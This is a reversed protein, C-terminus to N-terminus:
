HPISIITMYNQKENARMLARWERYTLQNTNGTQKVWAKYAKPMQVREKHVADAILLALLGIIALVVCSEILTWASGHAAALLTPRNLKTKM